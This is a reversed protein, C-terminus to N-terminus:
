DRAPISTAALFSRRGLGNRSTCRARTIGVRDFVPFGTTKALASLRENLLLAFQVAAVPSPFILLFSDGATGNEAADPFRALLERVLAHHQQILAVGDRDGLQEKIQTSGVIDTFLM